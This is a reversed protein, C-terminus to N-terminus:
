TAFNAVLRALALGLLAGAAVDSPYHLGLIVRSMAVLVAFPVLLWGLAPFATVAIGTFSVAHLTHGSPFSYRDLARAGARIRPHLNCPRERVLREKLLRYVATGLIGAVALQLAVSLGATGYLLPLAVMLVYWFVGDGLRSVAAFLGLISPRECTRNARLCFRVEADGLKTLWSAAS